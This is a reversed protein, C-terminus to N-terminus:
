KINHDPPQPSIQLLTGILVHTSISLFHPVQNLKNKIRWGAVLPKKELRDM